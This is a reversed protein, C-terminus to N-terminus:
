SSEPKYDKDGVFTSILGRQKCRKLFAIAKEDAIAREFDSVRVKLLEIAEGISKIKENM